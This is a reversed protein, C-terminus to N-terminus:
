AEVLFIPTNDRLWTLITKREPESLKITVLGGITLEAKGIDGTTIYLTADIKTAM